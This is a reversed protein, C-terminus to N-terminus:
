RSVYLLVLDLVQPLVANVDSQFPIFCPIMFLVRVQRKREVRIVRQQAIPIMRVMSEMRRNVDSRARLAVTRRQHISM